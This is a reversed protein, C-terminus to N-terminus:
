SKRGTMLGALGAVLMVIGGVLMWIARDTPAGTFFRSIDSSASNMATAGFIVLLIGGALLALSVAKIM